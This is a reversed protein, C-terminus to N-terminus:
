KEKLINPNSYFMQWNWFSKYAVCLFIRSKGKEDIEHFNIIYKKEAWLKKWISFIMKFIISIQNKFITNFIDAIYKSIKLKSLM